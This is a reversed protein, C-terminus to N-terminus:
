RPARSDGRLLLPPVVEGGRGEAEEGTADTFQYKGSCFEWSVERRGGGGGTRQACTAERVKFDWAPM